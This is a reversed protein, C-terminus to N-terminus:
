FQKRRRKRPKPREAKAKAKEARHKLRVRKETQAAIQYLLTICLACCGFWVVVTVIAQLSGGHLREYTWQGVLIALGIGAALGILVLVVLLGLFWYSSSRM